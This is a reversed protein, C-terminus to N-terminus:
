FSFSVGLTLGMTLDADGTVNWMPLELWANLGPIIEYSVHPTLTMGIDMDDVPLGIELEVYLPIASFAFSPTIYLWEFFTSEDAANTLTNVIEIDLGFLGPDMEMRMGLLINMGVWDFADGATGLYIPFALQGFATLGGLDHTYRIRPEMEITVDADSLDYGSWHNGALPIGFWFNLGFTLTGEDTLLLHYAADLEIDMGLGFDDAPTAHFPYMNLGLEAFLDLNEVLDSNSYNLFLRINATDMADLDDHNLYDINFELGATLGLNDQAFAAGGALSLALFLVLIKKM